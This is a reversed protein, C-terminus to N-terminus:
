DKTGHGLSQGSDCSLRQDDGLDTQLRARRGAAFALGELGETLDHFVDDFILAQEGKELADTGLDHLTEQHLAQEHHGFLPVNAM